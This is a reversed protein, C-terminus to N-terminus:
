HSLNLPLQQELSTECGSLDIIFNPVWATEQFSLVFLCNEGPTQWKNKANNTAWYRVLESFYNQVTGQLFLSTFILFASEQPLNVCQSTSTVM